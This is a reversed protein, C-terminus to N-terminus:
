LWASISCFTSLALVVALPVQCLARASLSLSFKWTRGFEGASLAKIVIPFELWLRTWMSILHKRHSADLGGGSVRGHVIARFNRRTMWDLLTTGSGSIEHFLLSTGSKFELARCWRVPDGSEVVDHWKVLRDELGVQTRRANPSQSVSLQSRERVSERSTTTEGM